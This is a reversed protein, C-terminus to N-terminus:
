PMVRALRKFFYSPGDMSKDEKVVSVLEWGESGLTALIILVASESGGGFDRCELPGTTAVCARYATRWVIMKGTTQSVRHPAVRLYEISASSQARVGGTSAFAAAVLAVVSLAVLSTKSM